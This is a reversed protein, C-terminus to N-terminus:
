LAPYNKTFEDVKEDEEGENGEEIEALLSNMGPFYFNDLSAKEEALDCDKPEHNADHRFWINVAINQSNENAKSNV